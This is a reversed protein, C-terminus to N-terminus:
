SALKLTLFELLREISHLPGTTKFLTLQPHAAGRNISDSPLARWLQQLLQQLLNVDTSNDVLFLIKSLPISEILMEIEFRCGQQQAGFGRLDMVVVESQTALARVTDKWTNDYCFFENIRYRGDPDPQADLSTLRAHLDKRDTVFLKRLRFAWFQLLEDPEINTAALDPAGILNIPGIFRWRQGVQDLLRRSRRRHGFVRLLLLPAPKETTRYTTLLGHALGKYVFWALIISVSAGQTADFQVVIEVLTIVLWWSDLTFMQDSFQKQRYRHALRNLTWVASGVLVATLLILLPWRYHRWLEPTNSAVALCALGQTSLLWATVLAISIFYAPLGVSRWARHSLLLLLLTPPAMWTLWVFFLSGSAPDTRLNFASLAIDISFLIAFYGSIWLWKLRLDNVSTLLLTPIIPWAYLYAVSLVRLPLLEIHGFILTLITAIFAHLLGAIAFASGTKRAAQRTTEFLKSGTELPTEASVTALRLAQPPAMAAPASRRIPLTNESDISQPSLRRMLARVHHRYFIVTLWTLLIAFPLAALLIFTTLGGFSPFCQGSLPAAIEPSYDMAFGTTDLSPGPPQRVAPM